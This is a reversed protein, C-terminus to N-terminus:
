DMFGIVRAKAESEVDTVAILTHEYTHADGKTRALLVLVLWAKHAEAHDFLARARDGTMTPALWRQAEEWTNGAPLFTMQMVTNTRGERLSGDRAKDIFAQVETDDSLVKRGDLQFPTATVDVAKLDKDQLLRYFRSVALCAGPNSMVAGQTAGPLVKPLEIKPSGDGVTHGSAPSGKRKEGDGGPTHATPEGGSNQANLEQSSKVFFATAVVALSAVVIGLIVVNLKM